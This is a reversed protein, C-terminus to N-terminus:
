IEIEGQFGQVHNTLEDIKRDLRELEILQMGTSLWNGEALPRRNIEGQYAVAESTWGNQSFGLFFFKLNERVPIILSAKEEVLEAM